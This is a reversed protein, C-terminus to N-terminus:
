WRVIQLVWVWEGDEQKRRLIELKDVIMEYACPEVITHMNLYARRWVRLRLEASTVRLTDEPTPNSPTRPPTPLPKFTQPIPIPKTEQPQHVAENLVASSKRNNMRCQKRQTFRSLVNSITSSLQARLDTNRILKPEKPLLQQHKRLPSM